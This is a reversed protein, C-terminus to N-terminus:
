LRRKAREIAARVEHANTLWSGRGRELRQVTRALAETDQENDLDAVLREIANRRNEKGRGLGTESM